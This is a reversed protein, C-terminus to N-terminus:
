RASDTSNFRKNRLFFIWSPCSALALVVSFPGYIASGLLIDSPTRIPGSFFWMVAGCLCAVGVATGFVGIVTRLVTSKSAFVTWMLSGLVAGPLLLIPLLVPLFLLAMEGSSVPAAGSLPADTAHFFIEFLCFLPVGVSAGGAM